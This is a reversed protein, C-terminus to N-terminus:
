RNSQNIEKVKWLIQANLQFGYMEYLHIAPNGAIVKVSIRKCDNAKLWAMAWDMLARGLGKGRATETVFLFGLTGEGHSAEVSVFGQWTEKEEAVAVTGTGCQIQTQFNRIVTDMDKAPYLGKHYLSVSNHYAALQDLFPRLREAEDAGIERIM